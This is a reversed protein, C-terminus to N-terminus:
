LFIPPSSLSASLIGFLFDLILFLRPFAHTYPLSIFLFLFLHSFNGSCVKIWEELNSSTTANREDDATTEGVTSTVTHAQAWCCGELLHSLGFHIHLPKGKGLLHHSLSTTHIAHHWTCIAFGFHACHARLICSSRHCAILQLIQSAETELSVQDHLGKAVCSGIWLRHIHCGSLFHSVIKSIM